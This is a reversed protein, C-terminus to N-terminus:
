NAVGEVTAIPSVNPESQAIRTNSIITCYCKDKDISILELRYPNYMCFSLLIHCKLPRHTGPEPRPARCTETVLSARINTLQRFDPTMFYTRGRQQPNSSLGKLTEEDVASSIGVAFMYIGERRVQEAESLTRDANLTPVGDTIIIAINPANPRDGNRNGFCETRLKLLGEYTNTYGREHQLRRVRNILPEKEQYSDLTFQLRANTSFTVLGVNTNNPGIEFSRIM